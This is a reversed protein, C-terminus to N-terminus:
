LYYIKETIKARLISQNAFDDSRHQEAVIKDECEIPWDGIVEICM